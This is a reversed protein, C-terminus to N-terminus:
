RYIQYLMLYVIVGTASVYLWMPYTWRALRRHSDFKGKLAYRLTVLIFPVVVIALVTHTGLIVFYIPRVIGEGTFRTPGLGFHYTRISHYTIYCALFLTSTTFASLMCVRHKHVRGLKIFLFGFLLFIGSLANLSANIHPFWGILEL